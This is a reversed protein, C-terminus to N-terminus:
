AMSGGYMAYLRLRLDARAQYYSVEAKLAKVLKEPEWAELAAALRQQASRLRQETASARQARM